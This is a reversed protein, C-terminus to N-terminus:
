PSLYVEYAVAEKIIERLVIWKDYTRAYNSLRELAEGITEPEKDDLQWYIKKIFFRGETDYDWKMSFLYNGSRVCFVDGRAIHVIRLRPSEFLHVVEEFSRVLLLESKIGYRFSIIFRLDELSSAYGSDVYVNTEPDFEYLMYGNGMKVIRECLLWRPTEMVAYYMEM